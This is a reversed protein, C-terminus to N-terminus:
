VNLYEDDLYGHLQKYINLYENWELLEYANYQQGDNQRQRGVQKILDRNISAARPLKNTKKIM